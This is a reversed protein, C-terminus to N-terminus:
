GEGENFKVAVKISANKRLKEGWLNLVASQLSTELEKEVSSLDTSNKGNKEKEISNLKIFYYHGQYYYLKKGIRNNSSLQFIADLLTDPQGIQPIYGQGISFLGTNQSQINYKKLEREIDVGKSLLNEWNQRLNELYEKKFEKLALTRKIKDKVSDFSSLKEERKETILFLFYGFETEVVPSIQSVNLNTLVEEVAKDQTGREVWGMDGGKKSFEDDSYKIAYESFNDPKIETALKDIKERTEKKKEPSAKFPIGIRIRKLRVAAKEKFESQHTNYYDKIKTEEIMKIKKNLTKEDTPVKFNDFDIKSFTLSIKTEKLKYAGNILASSVRVRRALYNQLKSARLKERWNKEFLGRNPMRSYLSADFKGDKHLYPISKIFDALEKDPVQIQLQQAQQSFLKVQIMEELTREPIRLQNIINEDYKGLMNQLQNLKGELEERFDQYSIPEGNVYAAVGSRSGRSKSGVGYMAMVAVVAMVIFFTVINSKRRRIFNLM